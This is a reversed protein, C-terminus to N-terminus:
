NNPSTASINRQGGHCGPKKHYMCINVSSRTHVLCQALSWICRARAGASRASLVQGAGDRHEGSGVSMWLCEEGAGPVAESPARAMDSQIVGDPPIMAGLGLGRCGVWDRCRQWFSKELIRIVIYKFGRLRSKRGM